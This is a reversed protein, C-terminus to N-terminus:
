RDGYIDRIHQRVEDQYAQNVKGDEGSAFWEAWHDDCLNEPSTYTAEKDCKNCKM